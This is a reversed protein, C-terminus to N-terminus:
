SILSALVCKDNSPNTNRAGESNDEEPDRASCWFRHGEAWARSQCEKGCYKAKRCRRCKAFERPYQEWKGCTMNACQRIGGRSEDKRCANRMIVGAWYQIEWPLRPHSEAVAPRFTFREVLSFINSAIVPSPLNQPNNSTSTVSRPTYFAQRVYPYKSLYALLQLSLLVDEDKFPGQQISQAILGSSRMSGGPPEPIFGIPARFGGDVPATTNRPSGELRIRQAAANVTADRLMEIGTPGASPPLARGIQDDALSVLAARPTTDVTRPRPTGADVRQTTAGPAGPPAGLAMDDNAEMNLITPDIANMRFGDMGAGGFVQIGEDGVSDVVAVAQVHPRTGQANSADTQLDEGDTEIGMPARRSASPRRIHTETVSNHVSENVQPAILTGSRDRAEVTPTNGRIPTTVSSNDTSLLESSSSPRPLLSESSSTATASVDAMDEDGDTEDLSRLVWRTSQEAAVQQQLALALQVASVAESERQRREAEQRAEQRKAHRLQRSEKSTVAVTSSPTLPLGKSILWAELVAGVVQLMGAQVVRSRISESGRVGVNVVCQFALSFRHAAGKDFPPFEGPTPAKRKLSQRPPLLGYFQRPNIPPPPSSVFERLMRVLCELGGDITLIERIRPSTNTLYTLNTLSNNLPLASTADLALCPM